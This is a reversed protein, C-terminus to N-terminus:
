LHMEPFNERVLLEDGSHTMAVFIRRVRYDITVRHSSHVLIKCLSNGDGVANVISHTNLRFLVTVPSKSEKAQKHEIGNLKM